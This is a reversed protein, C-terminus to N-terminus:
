IHRHVILDAAVSSAGYKGLLGAVVGAGSVSAGTQRAHDLAAKAIGLALIGERLPDIDPLAIPADPFVYGHAYLVLDGNWGAPRFLDHLAGPGIEGEGYSFAPQNYSDENPQTTDQCGAFAMAALAVFALYKM